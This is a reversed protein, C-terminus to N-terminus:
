WALMPVTNVGGVVRREVGRLALADELDDVRAVPRTSRLISMPLFSSSNPSGSMLPATRGIASDGSSRVTYKWTDNKWPKTSYSRSSSRTSRRACRGSLSSAFTSADRPTGARSPGGRGRSSGTRCSATRRRCSTPSRPSRPGRTTRRCSRPRDARLRVPRRVAAAAAVAEHGDAAGVGHRHDRVALRLLDRADLHAVVRLPHPHALHAGPQEARLLRAAGSSNASCALRPADLLPLEPRGVLPEVCFPGYTALVHQAERGRPSLRRNHSM